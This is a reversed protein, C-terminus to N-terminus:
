EQARGTGVGSDSAAGAETLAAGWGGGGPTEVRIREGAAFPRTFSGPLATGEPLRWAAGAAGAGGGALGFPRRTRRQSLLSVTVARLFLLERVLGDGGPHRGTGGSGPRLSFRLVRVPLRREMVEADTIRTNTMHTHVGSAGARRPTAGAGGALTEYAGFGEDGFTLNNMTGQSAAALGLAGLLVDVVRQSTEVNGGVVAAGAPPDLLSDAPIVLEVARLCGENLPVDRALACRLVYLVAARCVAPPANLNGASPPGTGTFDVLVPTPAGPDLRVRV